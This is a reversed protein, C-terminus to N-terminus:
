FGDYLLSYNANFRLKREDRGLPLDAIPKAINFDFIYHKDDTLRVGAAASTLKRGSYAAQVNNSNYWARAHDVMVYPQVTALLGWGTSFKRNLEASVGYGKDGALEGQPYGLGYRWAGFSTQEINPLIDRSYQGTGSLTLGFGAPLIATQKLDMTFRTFDIDYEPAGFEAYNSTMSKKAGLADLGKYMNLSIDRSQKEGVERYRLGARLVRLHTRQQLWANDAERHYEDISQAAYIGATATLLSKNNLIFPYSVGLGIRENVVRREWGQVQLVADEPHAEYHYGDLEVAVGDNGMPVSVAGDIYRVDGSALPVAGTLRVQEGLPTLSNTTMTVLGQMGAGMDALGASFAVKQHTAALVLETSGDARRPMDLTPTFRMGPVQRMLNLVRELTAGTMPKEIILPQALSELRDAANGIDGDIRVSAVHGEVITVRVLGNAFDQDQLLAFSLPYGQQQYLATIKNVEQVLQAVTMERGALPELITAIETLSVVTNGKVDFFRPILRQQLRRAVAAQADNAEQRVPPAPRAAPGPTEIKPLSDLPNGRMPGDAWSVPTFFCSAALSAALPINRYTSVPLKKLFSAFKM